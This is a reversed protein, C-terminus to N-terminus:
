WLNNQKVYEDVAKPEECYWDTDLYGQKMLWNSYDNLTDIINVKHEKDKQYLLKQIFNKFDKETFNKCNGDKDKAIWKGNYELFKEDFEKEWDKNM